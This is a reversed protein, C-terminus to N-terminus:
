MMGMHKQHMKNWDKRFTLGALRPPLFALPKVWPAKPINLTSQLPTLLAM